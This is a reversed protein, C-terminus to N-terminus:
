KLLKVHLFGNLVFNQIICTDFMKCLDQIKEESLGPSMGKAYYSFKNLQKRIDLSASVKSKLLVKHVYDGEYCCARHYVVVKGYDDRKIFFERFKKIDKVCNYKNTLLQKWNIIERNTIPICEGTPKITDQILKLLEETVFVDSHNFAHAIRAFLRDPDFKAHGAVLFCIRVTDLYHHQVLEMGYQIMFQNKNTPGNDSYLCLHRVWSPIKQHIYHDVLSITLDGNKACAREDSVYVTNQALAHNVIGFINHSLKRLYYTEGPQASFGWHPTLKSQQYDLSLTFTIEEMLKKLQRKDEETKFKKEQLEQISLFLSRSENTQQRYYQLERNAVMKHEELLLGYSEALTQCECIREQNGNGNQQLRKCIAEARRKQEQCEACIECYDTRLPSIAHKPRYLKLWNKATGNSISEGDDLSRNFEYVLSRRKWQEAKDADSKSPANIRNFKPSFFLLPGHSGVQRGNPQSNTDVFDLFRSLLHKKSNNSSGCHLKPPDRLSVFSNNELGMWWELVNIVNVPPVIDQAREKPVDEKRIQRIPANAQGRKIERLRHLRSAHVNLIEKICPVCFLYNGYIDFVNELLWENQKNINRYKKNAKKPQQICARHILSQGTHLMNNFMDVFQGLTEKCFCSTGVAGAGKKDIERDYFGKRKSEDYSGELVNNLCPNIQADKLGHVIDERLFYARRSKGSLFREVSKKMRESRFTKKNNDTRKQQKTIL